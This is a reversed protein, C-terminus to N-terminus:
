IMEQANTRAQPTLLGHMVLEVHSRLYNEPDRFPSHEFCTFRGVSHHWVALMLLPAFILEIANEIDIPRYEGRAIGDTLAHRLLAHGREVVNERYFAAVDPFNGAESLLLKPIGGYPTSGVNRWWFIVLSEMLEGPRSELGADMQAGIADILPVVGEQIAAKFLAEKSDFYLYLTGKSVGAARAIDDLRTAAFGREVFLQLAAAVLEGPRAEKRRQRTPAPESLATDHATLPADLTATSM